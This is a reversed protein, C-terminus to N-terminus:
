AIMRGCFGQDSNPQLPDQDEINRHDLAIRIPRVLEDAISQMAAM